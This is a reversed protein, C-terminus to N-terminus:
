SVRPHRIRWMFALCAVIAGVALPGGVWFFVMNMQNIAHDMREQGWVANRFALAADLEGLIGLLAQGAFVIFGMNIITVQFKTLEKGARYAVILYASGLALARNLDAVAANTHSHALDLMEYHTLEIM